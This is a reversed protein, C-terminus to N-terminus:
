ENTSPAPSHFALASIYPLFKIYMIFSFYIDSLKKLVNKKSTNKYNQNKPHRKNLRATYKMNYHVYRTPAGTTSVGWCVGSSPGWGPTTWQPSVGSSISPTM